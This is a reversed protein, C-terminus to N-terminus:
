LEFERTWEGNRLEVADSDFEPDFEPIAVTIPAPGERVSM